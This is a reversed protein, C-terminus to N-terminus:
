MKGPSVPFTSAPKWENVLWHELAELVILLIEGWGSYFFDRPDQKLITVFKKAWPLLESGLFDKAEKAADTIQLDADSLLYYVYELEVCLHDPLEAAESCLTLGSKRLRENMEVATERMLLRESGEYCSQYLPAVVGDASNIFLRVYESEIELHLNDSSEFSLAYSKLQRILESCRSNSRALNRELLEWFTGDRFRACLSVDPGWFVKAVVALIEKLEELTETSIGLNHRFEKKTRTYLYERNGM